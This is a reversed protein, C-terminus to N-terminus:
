LEIIHRIVYFSIFLLARKVRLNGISIKCANNGKFFKQEELQQRQPSYILDSSSPYNLKARGEKIKIDCLPDNEMKNPVLYGLPKTPSDNLNQVVIKIYKTWDEDSKDYMVQFLRSRLHRIGLEAIFCHTGSVRSHYRAHMKQFEPLLYSLEMDSQYSEFPQQITALIEHLGKLVSHKKKGDSLVSIWIKRTWVDTLLLVWERNNM